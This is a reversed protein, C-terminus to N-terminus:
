VVSKRDKGRFQASKPAANVARRLLPVAKKARETQTLIIGLLHNANANTPEAGLVRRYGAEAKKLHGARQDEMAQQLAGALAPRNPITINAMAPIYSM